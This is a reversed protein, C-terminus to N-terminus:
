DLDSLTSTYGLQRKYKIRPPPPPSCTPPPLTLQRTKPSTSGNTVRKRRHNPLEPDSFIGLEDDSHRSRPNTRINVRSYGTGGPLRKHSSVNDNPNSPIPRSRKTLSTLDYVPQVDLSDPRPRKVAHGQFPYDIGKPQKRRLKPTGMVLRVSFKHEKQTPGCKLLLAATMSNANTIKNVLSVLTRPINVKSPLPIEMGEEHKLCTGAWYVNLHTSWAQYLVKVGITNHQNTVVQIKDMPICLQDVKLTVMKFPTWLKLYIDTTVPDDGKVPHYNKNKQIKLYWRWVIYAISTLIYFTMIFTLYWFAVKFPFPLPVMPRDTPASAVANFQKMSVVLYCLYKGGVVFAVTLAAVWVLALIAVYIASGNVKTRSSIEHMKTAYLPKNAKALQIVRDLSTRILSDKDNFEEADDFSPLPLEPLRLIPDQLLRSTMTYRDNTFGSYDTLKAIWTMNPIYSRQIGVTETKANCNQLSASIFASKTKLSCRCGLTVVCSSCPQTVRPRQNPCQIVWNDGTSNASLFFKGDGVDLIQESLSATIILESTCYEAAMKADQLFLALICSPITTSIEAIRSSCRKVHRGLCTRLFKSDFTTYTDGDNSLGVYGPLNTLQTYYKPSKSAQMPVSLVEYVHYNSNLVTLPINIRIYIHSKDAYITAVPTTYFYSLSGFAFRFPTFKEHLIPQILNLAERLHPISILDPSLYGEHVRIVGDTQDRVALEYEMYAHETMVLEGMLEMLAHFYVGMLLQNVQDNLLASAHLAQLHIMKYLTNNMTNSLHDMRDRHIDLVSTMEGQFAMFKSDVNQQNVQLRILDAQLDKTDSETAFGFLKKGIKGVLDILGRKNRSHVPDQDEAQTMTAYSPVPHMDQNSLTYNDQTGLIAQLNEYSGKNQHYTNNYATEVNTRLQMHSSCFLHRTRNLIEPYYVASQLETDRIQQKYFDYINQVEPIHDCLTKFLLKPPPPLRPIRFIHEWTSSSVDVKDTKKLYVGYALTEVENYQIINTVQKIRQEQLDGQNASTTSVLLVPLLAALLRTAM